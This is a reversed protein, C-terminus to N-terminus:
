KTFDVTVLIYGDKDQQSSTVGVMPGLKKWNLKGRKLDVYIPQHIPLNLKKNFKIVVQGRTLIEIRSGLCTKTFVPYKTKDISIVNVRSMGIPVKNSRDSDIKCVVNNTKNKLAVIDGICMEEDAFFVITIAEITFFRM